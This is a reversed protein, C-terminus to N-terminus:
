VRLSFRGQLCLFRRGALWGRWGNGDGTTTHTQKQIGTDGFKQKSMWSHEVPGGNKRSIDWAVDHHQSLSLWEMQLHFWILFAAVNLNLLKYSQNKGGASLIILICPFAINWLVFVASGLFIGMSSTRYPPLLPERFSTLGQLKCHLGTLYM